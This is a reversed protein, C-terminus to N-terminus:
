TFNRCNSKIVIRPNILIRDQPVLGETLYKYMKEVALKGQSYQEQSIAAQVVDEEIYKIIQPYTDTCVIKIKGSLGMEIIKKCVIHAIATGIFIGNMMPYDRILKGTLSYTLKEDDNSEFVGIIKSDTLKIGNSFGEAVERHTVIRENGIIVADYGGGNAQSLLQAGIEGVVAANQKIVSLRKCGKNDSVIFICPINRESLENMVPFYRDTELCLIFGDVGKAIIEQLDKLVENANYSVEFRNYVPEVRFDTLDLLADKIGRIIEDNFGPFYKELVIGIRLAKRKLSQAVKNAKFGMKKVTDLVLERTEEKIGSKRNVAKFVTTTSVGATKAIDYITVKNSM